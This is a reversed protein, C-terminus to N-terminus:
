IEGSKITNRSEFRRLSRTGPKIGEHKSGTIIWSDLVADKALCPASVLTPVSMMIFYHLFMSELMM